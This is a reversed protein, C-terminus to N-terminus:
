DPRTWNTFRYDADRGMYFTSITYKSVFEQPSGVESMLLIGRIGFGHRMTPYHVSFNSTNNYLGLWSVYRRVLEVDTDMSVQRQFADDAGIQRLFIDVTDFHRTRIIALSRVLAARVEMRTLDPIAARLTQFLAQPYYFGVVGLGAICRNVLGLDGRAWGDRLLTEIYPMATGRKGYALGLPLLLIDFQKLFLVEENFFIGPHETVLRRTFEEVLETWAPPTGPSIV